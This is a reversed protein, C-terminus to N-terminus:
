CLMDKHKMFLLSLSIGKKFLADLGNTVSYAAGATLALSLIIYFCWKIPKM